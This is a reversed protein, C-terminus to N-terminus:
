KVDYPTYLACHTQLDCQDDDPLKIGEKHFVSDRADYVSVSTSTMNEPASDARAPIIMVLARQTFLCNEKCIM